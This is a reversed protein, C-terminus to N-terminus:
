LLTKLASKWRRKPGSSKSIFNDEVNDCFSHYRSECCWAVVGDGSSLEKVKVVVAVLLSTYLLFTEGGAIHCSEAVLDEEIM